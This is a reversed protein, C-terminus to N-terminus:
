RLWWVRGFGLLFHLMLFDVLLLVLADETNRGIEVEGVTM